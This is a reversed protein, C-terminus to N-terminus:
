GQLTGWCGSGVFLCKCPHSRPARLDGSHTWQGWRLRSKQLGQVVLPSGLPPLCWIVANNKSLIMNALKHKLKVACKQTWQLLFVCLSEAPEPEHQVKSATHHLHCSGPTSLIGLGVERGGAQELLLTQNGVLDARQASLPPSSIERAISWNSNTRYM